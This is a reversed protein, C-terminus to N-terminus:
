IIFALVDASHKTMQNVADGLAVTEHDANTGVFLILEMTDPHFEVDALPM